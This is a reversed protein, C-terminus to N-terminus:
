SDIDGKAFGKAAFGKPSTGGRNAARPKGESYGVLAKVSDLPLLKKGM